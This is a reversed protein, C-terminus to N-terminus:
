RKRKGKNLADLAKDVATAWDKMQETLGGVMDEKQMARKLEEEMRENIITVFIVKVENNSNTEVGIHEEFAAKFKDLNLRGPLAVRLQLTKENPSYFEIGNKKPWGKKHLSLVTYDDGRVVEWEENKCWQELCVKVGGKVGEKVGKILKEKVHPMAEEVQLALALHKEDSMIFKMTTDVIIDQAM